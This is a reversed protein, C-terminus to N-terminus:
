LNVDPDIQDAFNMLPSCHYDRSYLHSIWDVLGWGGQLVM